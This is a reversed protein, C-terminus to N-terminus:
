DQVPPPTTHIITTRFSLFAQPTLPEYVAHCAIPLPFGKHIDQITDSVHEQYENYVSICHDRDIFELGCTERRDFLSFPAHAHLDREGKISLLCDIWAALHFLPM